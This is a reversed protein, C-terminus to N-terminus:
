GRLGYCRSLSNCIMRSMIKIMMMIKRGSWSESRPDPAHDPILLLFFHFM